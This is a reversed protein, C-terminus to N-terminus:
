PKENKKTLIDIGQAGSKRAVDILEVAQGLEVNRDGRIRLTKDSLESLKETLIIQLDSLIIEKNAFLYSGDSKVVVELTENDSIGIASEAHPLDINITDEKVFESTLMFFILLLFVIDILPTMNPVHSSRKYGEFQMFVVMVTIAQM